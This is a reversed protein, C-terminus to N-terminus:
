DPDDRRDPVHHGPGPGLPPPRGRIRDTRPPRTPALKETMLSERSLATTVLGAIVSALMLPLVERHRRAPLLEPRELQPHPAPARLRAHETSRVFAAADFNPEKATARTPQVRVRWTDVAVPTRTLEVWSWNTVRPLMHM